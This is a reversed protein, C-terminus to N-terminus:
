RRRLDRKLIKQFPTWLSVNMELLKLQEAQFAKHWAAIGDIGHMARREVHRNSIAILDFVSGLSKLEESTQTYDERAFNVQEGLIDGLRVALELSAGVSEVVDLAGLFEAGAADDVLHVSEEVLDDVLQGVDEAIKDMDAKLDPHNVSTM